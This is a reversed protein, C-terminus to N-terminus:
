RGIVEGIESIDANPLFDIRDSLTDNCPMFIRFPLSLLTYDPHIAPGMRRRIRGMRPLTKGRSFPFAVLQRNSCSMQLGGGVLTYTGIAAVQSRESFVPHAVSIVQSDHHDDAIGYGGSKSLTSIEASGTWPFTYINTPAPPLVVTCTSSCETITTSVCYASSPAFSTAAIRRMVFLGIRYMM